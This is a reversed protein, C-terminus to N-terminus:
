WLALVEARAFSIGGGGKGAIVVTERVGEQLCRAIHRGVVERVESLFLGHVDMQGLGGGVGRGGDFGWASGSAERGLSLRYVRLSRLLLSAPTPRLGLGRRADGEADVEDM